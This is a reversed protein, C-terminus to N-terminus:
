RTPFHESQYKVFLDVHGFSIPGHCFFGGVVESLASNDMVVEPCSFKLLKELVPGLSWIEPHQVGGHYFVPRPYILQMASSSFQPLLRAQPISHLSTFLPLVLFVTYWMVLSRGFVSVCAIFREPKGGLHSRLCAGTFQVLPPRTPVLSTVPESSALLGSEHGVQTPQSGECWCDSVKCQTIEPTWTTTNLQEICIILGNKLM